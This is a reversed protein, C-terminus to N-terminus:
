SSSDDMDKLIKQERKYAQYETILYYVLAFIAALIGLGVFIPVLVAGLLLFSIGVITLLLAILFNVITKM